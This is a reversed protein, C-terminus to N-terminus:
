EDEGGMMKILLRNQWELVQKDDVARPTPSTLELVKRLQAPNGQMLWVCQSLRLAELPDHTILIVTKGALLEVFLTQLQLRSVVDLASFPEDMLVIPKDELLTRALAVRQRQGGSLQYPMRMAFDALGVKELLAFAQERIETSLHQRLRYGLCVNDLVNLWPMLLDDQAMWAVASSSKEICIEGEQYPLLGAMAKLLSSKGVGSSGLISHWYGASFHATLGKFLSQQEYQMSFNNLSIGM